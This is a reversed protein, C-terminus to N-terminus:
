MLADVQEKVCWTHETPELEYNKQGERSLLQPGLAIHRQFSVIAFKACEYFLKEFILVKFKMLDRPFIFKMYLQKM